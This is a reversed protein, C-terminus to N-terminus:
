RPIMCFLGLGESGSRFADGDFVYKMGSGFVSEEGGCRLLLLM